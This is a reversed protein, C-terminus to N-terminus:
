APARSAWGNLTTLPCGPYDPSLWVLHLSKIKVAPITMASTCVNERLRRVRQAVVQRHLVQRRVLLRPQQLAELRQVAVHQRRLALRHLPQEQLHVGDALGLVRLQAVVRYRGQHGRRMRVHQALAHGEGRKARWVRESTSSLRALPKDPADRTPLCVSRGKLSLSAQTCM